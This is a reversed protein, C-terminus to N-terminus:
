RGGLEKLRALRAPEEAQLWEDTHLMDYAKGFWPTAEDARGLALLCEGLEEEVYGAGLNGAAARAAHLAQQSALAEELRGMSRYCRGVTWRAIFISDEDGAAERFAVGKQWLELAAELNGLDHQTWGTNNYLPGLWGKCRPDDSEECFRITREAWDLAAEGGAAIGLMHGADATLPDLGAAAPTHGIDWAEEFLAMSAAPDGASNITRGRELLYRMRVETSAGDLRAEVTDLIAHAEEFLRRLGFTRGLQTTVVLVYEDDGAAEGAALAERFRVESGAPDQFNWLPRWDPLEAASKTVETKADGTETMRCAGTWALAAALALSQAIADRTRHSM